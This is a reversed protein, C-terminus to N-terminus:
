MGNDCMIWYKAKGRMTRKDFACKQTYFLFNILFLLSHVNKSLLHVDPSLSFMEYLIQSAKLLNQNKEEEERKNLFVCICKFSCTMRCVNWIYDLLLISGFFFCCCYSLNIFRFWWLFKAVVIFVVMLNFDSVCSHNLLLYLLRIENEELIDKAHIHVTCLCTKFIFCHFFFIFNYM